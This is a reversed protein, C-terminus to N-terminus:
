VLWKCVKECLTTDLDGRRLPIQVWSLPSLCQYCLNWILDNIKKVYCTPCMCSPYVSTVLLPTFIGFPHDHDCDTFHLLVFLVIAL